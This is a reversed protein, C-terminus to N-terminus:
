YRVALRQQQQRKRLLNSVQYIINVAMSLTEYNSKIISGLAVWLLNM